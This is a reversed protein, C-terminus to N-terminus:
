MLQCPALMWSLNNLHSVARIVHTTNLWKHLLFFFCYWLNTRSPYAFQCCHHGRPLFSPSTSHAHFLLSKGIFVRKYSKFEISYLVRMYKKECINKSSFQINVINQLFLLFAVLILIEGVERVEGDEESCYVTIVVRCILQEM